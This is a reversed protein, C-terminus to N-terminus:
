YEMFLYYKQPKLINGGERNERWVKGEWIGEGQDREFENGRKKITNCM